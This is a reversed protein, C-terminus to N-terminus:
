WRENFDSRYGWAGHRNEALQRVQKNQKKPDANYKDGEENRAFTLATQIQKDRALDQEVKYKMMTKPSTGRPANQIQSQLVRMERELSMNKGKEKDLLDVMVYIEMNSKNVFRHWGQIQQDNIEDVELDFMGQFRRMREMTTHNRLLAKATENLDAENKTLFVHMRNKWGVQDEEEMVSDRLRKWHLYQSRSFEDYPDFPDQPDEAENCSESETESSLSEINGTPSAMVGRSVHSPVHSLNATHSRSHETNRKSCAIKCIWPVFMATMFTLLLMVFNTADYWGKSGEVEEFKAAETMGVSETLMIAAARLAANKWADENGQKQNMHKYYHRRSCFKNHANQTKDVDKNCGALLCVGKQVKEEDNLLHVEERFEEAARRLEEAQKKKTEATVKKAAVFNEDYRLQHVGRQLVEHFKEKAATKTLGDALQQHSNVWRWTGDMARLRQKVIAVEIATRKESLKLGSSMSKSADFLSKADTVLASEGTKKMTEDDQIDVLPNVLAANFVKLWELEDVAIAASQAEASLSSRCMRQLKRSAWDLITLQMPKGLKMEQDNAIFTLYGGQSSGDQRTAWAADCYTSYRIEEFTGHRVMTMEYRQVVDKAFRLVKNADLIDQVKASSLAGQLLSVAASLQPVCQTAPWALAGVLARLQRCETETCMEQSMAKRSKEISIPKVKTMYQRLSLTVMTYDMSQVIEMGCFHITPGFCWAGFRFRRSLGCIRDRFCLFRGDYEGELDKASHVEEGGGIYDDVHLGLVGDVTVWRDNLKFCRAEEDETSAERVSLYVCRDLPHRLFTLETVMTRDASGYWQRPARVDGFQPKTAKLLQDQRLGMLRELRRRMDASPQIYIRTEEDISDAQMFASKVDASLLRWQKHIVMSMISMRGVRSLTPSETELEKNLVDSHRFGQLIVRANAV